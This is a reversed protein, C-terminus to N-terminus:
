GARALYEILWTFNMTSRSPHGLMGISFVPDEFCLPRDHASFLSPLLGVIAFDFSRGFCLLVASRGRDYEGYCNLQRVGLGLLGPAGYCVFGGHYSVVFLM